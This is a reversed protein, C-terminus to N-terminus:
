SINKIASLLIKDSSFGWWIDFTSTQSLSAFRILINNTEFLIGTYLRAQPAQLWLWRPQPLDWCTFCVVNTNWLPMTVGAQITRTALESCKVLHSVAMYSVAVFFFFKKTWPGLFWSPTSPDRPFCWWDFSSSKEERNLDWFRKRVWGSSPSLGM